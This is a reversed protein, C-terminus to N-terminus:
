FFLLETFFYNVRLVWKGHSTELFLSSLFSHSWVEETLLLLLEWPLWSSIQSM